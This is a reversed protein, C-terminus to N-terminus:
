QRVRCLCLVNIEISLLIKVDFTVVHRIQFVHVMSWETTQVPRIEALRKRDTPLLLSEAVGKVFLPNSYMSGDLSINM